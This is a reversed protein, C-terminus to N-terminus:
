GAHRLFSLLVIRGDAPPVGVRGGDLAPLDFAPARDGVRPPEPSRDRM